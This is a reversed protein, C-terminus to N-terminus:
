CARTVDIAALRALEMSEALRVMQWGEFTGTIGYRGTSGTDTVPWLVHSWIAETSQSVLAPQDLVNTEVAHERGSCGDFGALGYNLILIRGDTRITMGGIRKGDVRSWKLYKPDALWGKLNPLGAFEDRPLVVPVDVHAQLTEVAEEVSIYRAKRWSKQEEPEPTPVYLPTSAAPEVQAREGEPSSCAALLVWALAIAGMGRGMGVPRGGLVSLEGFKEM